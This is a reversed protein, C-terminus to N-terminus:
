NDSTVCDLPDRARYPNWATAGLVNTSPSEYCHINNDIIISLGGPRNADIGHYCVFSIYM